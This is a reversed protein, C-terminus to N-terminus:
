NGHNKPVFCGKIRDNLLMKLENCFQADKSIMLNEMDSQKDDRINTPEYALPSLDESISVQVDGTLSALFSITLEM